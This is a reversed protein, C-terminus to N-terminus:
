SLRRRRRPPRSEQRAHRTSWLVHGFAPAHEVRRTSWLVHAWGTVNVLVGGEGMERVYVNWPGTDKSEIVPALRQGATARVLGTVHMSFYNTPPSGEITHVGELNLDGDLAVILRFYPANAQLSSPPDVHCAAVAVVFSAIAFVASCFGQERIWSLM